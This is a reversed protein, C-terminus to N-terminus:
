EKSKNAQKPMDKDKQQDESLVAQEFHHLQVTITVRPLLKHGSLNWSIVAQAIYMNTLSNCPFFHALVTTVFLMFTNLYTKQTIQINEVAHM